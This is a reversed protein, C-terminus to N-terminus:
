ERGPVPTREDFPRQLLEMMEGHLVTQREAYLDKKRTKKELKPTMKVLASMRYFVEYFRCFRWTEEAQEPPLNKFYARNFEDVAGKKGRFQRYYCRVVERAPVDWQLRNLDVMYYQGDPTFLGNAPLIDNHTLSYDQRAEFEPQWRAVWERILEAEKDSVVGTRKLIEVDRKVRKTLALFFPQPREASVRGWAQSKVLHLRGVQEAMADIQQPTLLDGHLIEGDIFEDVSFLARHRKDDLSDFLIRPVNVGHRTLLKTADVHARAREYDVPAYVRLIAKKDGSSLILVFTTSGFRPLEMTIPTGPELGLIQPVEDKVFDKTEQLIDFMDRSGRLFSM